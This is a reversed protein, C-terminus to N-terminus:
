GQYSEDSSGEVDSASGEIFALARLPVPGLATPPQTSAPLDCPSGASYGHRSRPFHDGYHVLIERHQGIDRCAYVALGLWEGDAQDAPIAGTIDDATLQVRTYAANASFTKSAENAFAIPHVAPDPRGAGVQFPPSVVMPVADDGERRHLQPEVTVAYEDLRQRQAAPLDAYDEERYWTGTYFGLLDGANIPKSSFLGLGGGKSWWPIVNSTAVYLSQRAVAQLSPAIRQGGEDETADDETDLLHPDVRDGLEDTSIANRNIGDSVAANVRHKADFIRHMRYFHAAMDGATPLSRVQELISDAQANGTSVKAKPLGADCPTSM